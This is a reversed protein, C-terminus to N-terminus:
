NMQGCWVSLNQRSVCSRVTFLSTLTSTIRENVNYSSPVLRFINESACHITTIMQQLNKKMKMPQFNMVYGAYLQRCIIAQEHAIDDLKTQCCSIWSMWFHFCAKSYLNFSYGPVLSQVLPAPAPFFFPTFCCFDVLSPLQTTSQPPPFPSLAQLCVKSATM